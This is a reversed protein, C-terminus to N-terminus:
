VVVERRSSNGPAYGEEEKIRRRYIIIAIFAVALVAGTVGGAIIATRIDEDEWFSKDSSLMVYDGAPPEDMDVDSPGHSNRGGGEKATSTQENRSISSDVDGTSDDDTWDGSGSAELDDGSGEWDEPPSLSLTIPTFLGLILLLAASDLVRM